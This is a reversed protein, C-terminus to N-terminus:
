QVRVSEYVEVKAVGLDVRPRGTLCALDRTRTKHLM